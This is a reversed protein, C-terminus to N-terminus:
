TPLLIDLSYCILYDLLCTFKWILPCIRLIYCTVELHFFLLFEAYKIYNYYIQIVLLEAYKIYNYYIQLVSAGTSLDLIKPGYRWMHLRPTKPPPFKAFINVFGKM